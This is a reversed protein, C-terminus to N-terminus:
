TLQEYRQAALRVAAVLGDPNRKIAYRFLDEEDRGIGHARRVAEDDDYLACTLLRSVRPYESRIRRLLDIGSMGPMRQDVLIVHIEHDELLRLAEVPSTTGLVKFERRLLDHVSEVFDPEDDVVLITYPRTIAALHTFLSM